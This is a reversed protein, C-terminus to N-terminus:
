GSFAYDLKEQDFFREVQADVGLLSSTEQPRAVLTVEGAGNKVSIPINLTRSGEPLFYVGDYGWLTGDEVMVARHLSWGDPATEYTLAVDAVFRQEAFEPPLEIRISVRDEDLQQTTLTYDM